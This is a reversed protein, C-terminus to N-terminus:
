LSAEQLTSKMKTLLQKIRLEKNHIRWTRVFRAAVKALDDREHVHIPAFRNDDYAINVSFIHRGRDEDYGEFQRRLYSSPVSGGSPAQRGESSSSRSLSGSMPKSPTTPRSSPSGGGVPRAPTPTQRPETHAHNGNPSTGKIRIGIAADTVPEKPEKPKKAAANTRTSPREPIPISPRRPRSPAAQDPVSPTTGFSDAAKAAGRVPKGKLRPTSNSRKNSGRASREPERSDADHKDPGDSADDNEQDQDNNLLAMTRNSPQASSGGRSESVISDSPQKAHHHGNKSVPDSPHDNPKPGSNSNRPPQQKLLDDTINEFPMELGGNAVFNEWETEASSDNGKDDTTDPFSPKSEKETTKTTPAADHSSFPNGTTLHTIDQSDVSSM